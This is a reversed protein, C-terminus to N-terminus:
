KKPPPPQFDSLVHLFAFAFFFNKEGVIKRTAKDPNYYFAIIILDQGPANHLPLASVKSSDEDSNYEQGSQSQLSDYEHKMYVPHQKVFYAM